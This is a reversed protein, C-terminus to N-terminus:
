RVGGFDNPGQNPTLGTGGATESSGGYVYPSDTPATTPAASTSPPVTDGATSPTETTVAPGPM